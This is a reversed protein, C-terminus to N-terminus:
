LRPGPRRQLSESADARLAEEQALAWLEPERQTVMKARAGWAPDAFADAFAWGADALASVRALAKERGRRNALAAGGGQLVPECSTLSLALPNARDKKFFVMTKGLGPSWSSGDGALLALFREREAEPLAAQRVREAVREKRLQLKPTAVGELALRHCDFAVFDPRECGVKGGGPACDIWGRASAEQIDQASGRAFASWGVNPVRRNTALSCDAARASLLRAVAEPLSLNPSGGVGDPEAAAMSKLEWPLADVLPALLSLAIGQDMLNLVARAGRESWVAATVPEAKALEGAAHRALSGIAGVQWGEISELAGLASPFGEGAPGTWLPGHKAAEFYGEFEQSLAARSAWLSGQSARAFPEAALMAGQRWQKPDRSPPEANSHLSRDRWLALPFNEILWSISRGSPDRLAISAESARGGSPAWGGRAFAELAAVDGQELAEHAKSDSAEGFRAKAIADAWDVDAGSKSQNSVKVEMNMKEFGWM